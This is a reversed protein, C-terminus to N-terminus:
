VQSLKGQHLKPIHVPLLHPSFGPPEGWWSATTIIRILFLSPRLVPLLLSLHFYCVFWFSHQLYIESFKTRSREYPPHYFSELVIGFSRSLAVPHITTGSRSIHFAPLVASILAELGELHLCGAPIHPDPIWILSLALAVMNALVLGKFKAVKKLIPFHLPSTVM